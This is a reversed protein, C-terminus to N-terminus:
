SDDCFEAAHLQLYAVKTDTHWSYDRPTQACDTRNTGDRMHWVIGKNWAKPNVERCFQHLQTAIASKNKPPFGLQRCCADLSMKRRLLLHVIDKRAAKFPSVDPQDPLAAVASKITDRYFNAQVIQLDTLVQGLKKRSTKNM